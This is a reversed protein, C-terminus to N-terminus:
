QLVEEILRLYKLGDITIEYERTNQSAILVHKIIFGRETMEEFGGEGFGM